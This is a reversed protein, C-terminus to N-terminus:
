GCIDMSRDMMHKKNKEYQSHDHFTFFFILRMVINEHAGKEREHNAHKQHREFGVFFINKRHPFVALAVAFFVCLAKWISWAQMHKVHKNSYQVSDNPRNRSITQDGKLRFHWFMRGDKPSRQSNEPHSPSSRPYDFTVCPNQINAQVEEQCRTPGSDMWTYDPVM